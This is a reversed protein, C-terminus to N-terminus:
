KPLYHSPKSLMYVGRGMTAAVLVDDKEDYTLGLTLVIPFQACTGFRSWAPAVGQGVPTAYVGRTTGVLLYQKKDILGSSELFIM